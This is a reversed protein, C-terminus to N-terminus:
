LVCTMSTDLAVSKLEFRGAKPDLIRTHAQSTQQRSPSSKSARPSPAFAVYGCRTGTISTPFSCWHRETTNTPEVGAAESSAGKPSASGVLGEALRSESM